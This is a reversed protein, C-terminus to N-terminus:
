NNQKKYYNRIAGLLNENFKKNKIMEIEFKYPPYVKKFSDDSETIYPTELIKPIDKLRPNYIIDIINNFGIYGYGINEHRDKKAGIENKSDNIHILKLKDLGILGDFENIIEEFNTLDYGADHLHCTDFCFGIKDKYLIGDYIEKLENLNGGCESGKGSMTELCIIVKQNQDIVKNLANTINIICQNIGLKVHSGPHIVIKNIGLREVRKIEEKLFEISFNYAEINTNNALNIIYPAHVVLDNKDIKHQEMLEYAKTTLINDINFRQTNQPAGTYIMFTNGGYSIEEITSGLLQKDKRFSVHSGILLKM